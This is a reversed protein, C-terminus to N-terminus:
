DFSSSDRGNSELAKVAAVRTEVSLALFVRELHKKVTLRIIGLIVAIEPNTKGQAVFSLVEAERESLGWRFIMRRRRIEKTEGRHVLVTIFERADAGVAVTGRLLAVAGSWHFLMRVVPPRARSNPDLASLTLRHVEALAAEASDDLKGPRGNFAAAQSFILEASSDMAVLAGARDMLVVGTGWM